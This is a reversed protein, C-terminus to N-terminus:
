ETIVIEQDVFWKYLIMARTRETDSFLRLFPERLSKKQIYYELAMKKLKIYIPRAMKLRRCLERERYSLLKTNDLLRSEDIVSILPHVSLAHKLQKERLLGAVFINFDSKSLFQATWKVKSAVEEIESRDKAKLQKVETLGRGLVFSRWIKRRRLVTKYHHLMHRKFEYELDTDDDEFRLTEILSEYENLIESDFEGRKSMYSLVYSDNPNSKPVEALTVEGEENDHVDVLNFFHRRVDAETKSSMIRSIDDFNGFGYTIMGDILLLEDILMWDGYILPISLNSVIRFRHSSNHETTKVDDFFCMLCSDSTCDECRFYTDLTVNRFCFDCYICLRREKLTKAFAM